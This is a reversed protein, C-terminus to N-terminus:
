QELLKHLIAGQSDAPPPMGYAACLTPAIDGMSIPHETTMGQKLGPGESHLHRRHGGTLISDVATALRAHRTLLAVHGQQV